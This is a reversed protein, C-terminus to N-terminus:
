RQLASFPLSLCPLLPPCLLPCCLLLSSLPASIQNGSAEQGAQNKIWRRNLEIRSCKTQKFNNSQCYTRLLIFRISSYLCLGQGMICWMVKPHGSSSIFPRCKYTWVGPPFGGDACERRSTSCELLLLALQDGTSGESTLLCLLVLEKMIHGTINQWMLLFSIPLTDENKGGTATIIGSM